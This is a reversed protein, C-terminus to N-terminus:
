FMRKRGIVANKYSKQDSNVTMELLACPASSENLDEGWLIYTENADTDFAVFGDPDIVYQVPTGDLSCVTLGDFPADIVCKLGFLSRVIAIPLLKGERCAATVMFGGVAKQTFLGDCREPMAPFLRIVGEYSQM